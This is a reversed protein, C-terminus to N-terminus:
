VLGRAGSMGCWSSQTRTDSELKACLPSCTPENRRGRTRVVLLPSGRPLFWGRHRRANGMSSHAPHEDQNIRQRDRHRPASARPSQQGSTGVSIPKNIHSRVGTFEEAQIQGLGLLDAGTNGGVVPHTGGRIASTGQSVGRPQPDRTGQVDSLLEANTVQGPDARGRLVQDGVVYPLQADRTQGRCVRADRHTRHAGVHGDLRSVDGEHPLVQRSQRAGAGGRRDLPIMSWLRTSEPPMRGTSTGSDAKPTSPSAATIRVWSSASTSTMALPTRAPRRGDAPAPLEAVVRGVGSLAWSGTLD